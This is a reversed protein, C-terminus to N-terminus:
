AETQEENRVKTQYYINPQTGVEEIVHYARDSGALQNVLSGNDNLDGFVISDTACAASCATTIAGDEVNKGAKKAELKGLQIRQVCLSCKEMVGRARVVVDPNLVMRGLDDQAPNFEEFKKNAIYNFWNFRRVKYPCNNACYRTGICRNYTMQNLGETSHTTAAVPCVTECPAHNCHQCMMPQFVVKPSSSPKEMASYGSISKDELDADTSYYRDIRLWHMERARRVEDKGVVPVNNEANCATICAGCGLCTNLDISMGWRHGVHEVPHEDWLSIEKVAVRGEHTPLAVVPNYADKDGAQFTKLDTEKVVGTRGMVTHHTQTSAIEYTSDLKEVTVNSVSYSVTGNEMGAMPYADVGVVEQTKWTAKGYGVALGITGNAQGPQMIVPAEVSYGNVTVKVMSAPSEQGIYENYGGAKIDEPSMTVYNDWTVKSIPDPLEQLWPNSAHQGDGIGAKQYLALEIGGGSVKKAQAVAAVMDASFEGVEAMTATEYVGQELTRNWFEGFFTINSQTPFINAEWYAKIFEYYSSDNGAWKLLSEAAQRTDYLPSITPQALSYSGVRPHADNWSELMHHEPCVYAVASTTENPMVSTAISLGVKGLGAAFEAGNSLTGVPNAGMVIAAEYQGANMDKILQQVAADDGQRMMSHHAMDVTSGYNALANNIANVITQVATNNSGSVVISQGKNAKLEDAAATIEAEYATEVGSIGGVIKNYLSMAIAAQESPKVMVRVDANAGTMSLNSEFQHHRSMFGNEPKRTKAYNIGHEIASPGNLLFDEGLSVIVKAKEYRYTPLAAIGFSNKNANLRGSYSISDYTIHTVNAGGEGGHTAKFLEIAAHTSPSIVSTTVIAIKGGNASITRLKSYIAQDVEKWTGVGEPGSPGQLRSSDYLGLVSSNVRANVGGETVASQKNGEILIPRGERTKVLISAYDNGDFYTSAYYNAMGPTVEEPKVLYPIAKTIPTECAALSAATVGFGLYKLFDRRSTSADNMASDDGVFDEVPLYEAFEKDRKELFAPDNNLEEIGKWYKKTKGM